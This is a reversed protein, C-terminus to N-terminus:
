IRIISRRDAFLDFLKQRGRRHPDCDVFGVYGDPEHDQRFAFHLGKKDIGCYASPSDPPQEDFMREIQRSSQGYIYVLLIRARNLEIFMEAENKPPARWQIALPSRIRKQMHSQLSLRCCSLKRRQYKANRPDTKWGFAVNALPQIRAMEPMRRL